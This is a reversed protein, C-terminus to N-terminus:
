LMINYIAMHSCSNYGACLRFDDRFIFTQKGLAIAAGLEQLVMTYAANAIPAGGGFGGDVRFADPIITCPLRLSARSEAFKFQTYPETMCVVMAGEDPPNMNACCFVADCERVAELDAQGIRYAWGPPQDKSKASENNMSFPEFVRAGTLIIADVCVADAIIQLPMLASHPMQIATFNLVGIYQTLKIVM